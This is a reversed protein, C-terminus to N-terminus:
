GAAPADSPTAARSAPRPGEKRAGAADQHARVIASDVSGMWDLDEDADARALTAAEAWAPRVDQRWEPLRVRSIGASPQFTSRGSHASTALQLGQWGPFSEWQGTM